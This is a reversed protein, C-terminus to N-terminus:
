KINKLEKELNNTDLKTLDTKELIEKLKETDNGLLKKIQDTELLKKLEEKNSNKLIGKAKDLNKALDKKPLKSLVSSLKKLMKEDM